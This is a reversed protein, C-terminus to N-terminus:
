TVLSELRHGDAVLGHLEGGCSCVGARQVVVGSLDLFNDRAKEVLALVDKEHHTLQRSLRYPFSVQQLGLRCKYVGVAANSASLGDTM